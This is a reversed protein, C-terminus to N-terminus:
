ADNPLTVRALVIQFGRDALRRFLAEYLARGAGRRRRDRVVYVSVECSWRYAERPHLRAGYAYGVVRDGDELVFWAHTECAGEIREAMVAASPPLAEFSIATETVYPAYIAACADADARTASRVRESTVTDPKPM